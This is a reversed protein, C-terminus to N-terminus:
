ETERGDGESSTAADSGGTPDHGTSTVYRELTSRVFQAIQEDAQERPHQGRYKAVDAMLSARARDAQAGLATYGLLNLRSRHASECVGATVIQGDLHTELLTIAPEIKGERLCRLVQMIYYPNASGYMGAVYGKTFGWVGGAVFILLAVLACVLVKM